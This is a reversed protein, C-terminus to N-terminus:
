PQKTINTNTIETITIIAEKRDQGREQDKDKEQDKDDKDILIDKDKNDGIQLIAERDIISHDKNTTESCVSTQIKRTSQSIINGKTYWKTPCRSMM